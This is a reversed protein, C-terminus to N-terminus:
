LISHSGHSGVSSLNDFEMSVHQEIDAAFM